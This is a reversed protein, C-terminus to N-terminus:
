NWEEEKCTYGVDAREVPTPIAVAMPLIPPMTQGM